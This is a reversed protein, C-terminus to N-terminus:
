AGSEKATLTADLMARLQRAEPLLRVYELSDPSLASLDDLVQRLLGSGIERWGDPRVSLAALAARALRRLGSHDAGIENSKEWTIEADPPLGTLDILAQSYARHPWAEYLARTMWEVRDEGVDGPTSLAAIRHRADTSMSGDEAM